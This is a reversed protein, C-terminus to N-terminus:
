IKCEQCEELDFWKVLYNSYVFCGLCFGCSSELWTAVNCMLITAVVLPRYADGLEDSLLVFTFCLTALTLGIAWAFRKPRAPKWHPEPHIVISLLSGLVGIPAFPTLGFVMGALMEWCVFPFLIYVYGQDRWFFINMLSIWSIVNLVGARARVAHEDMYMEDPNAPNAHHGLEWWRGYKGRILFRDMVSLAATQGGQEKDADQLAGVWPFNNAQPDAVLAHRASTVVSPVNNSFDKNRLIILAPITSLGFLDRMAETQDLDYPMVDIGTNKKCSALFNDEDRDNSVFVVTCRKAALDPASAIVTPSFARSHPCYNGGLFVGIYDYTHPDFAVTTPVLELPSEENTDRQPQHANQQIFSGFMNVRWDYESTMNAESTTKAQNM